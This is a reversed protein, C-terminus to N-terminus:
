PIRRQLPSRSIRVSEGTSPEAARRVGEGKVLKPGMTGIDALGLATFDSAMVCLEDLSRGTLGTLVEPLANLGAFGRLALGAGLALSVLGSRGRAALGTRLLGVGTHCGWM